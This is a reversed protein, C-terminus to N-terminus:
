KSHLVQCSSCLSGFPVQSCLTKTLFLPHLFGMCSTCWKCLCLHWQVLLIPTLSHFSIVLNPSNTLWWWSAPPLPLSPCARLLDKSITEWAEILVPLPQLKRPYSSRDSKAQLCVQCNAVCKQVDQRMGKWAFHQKLRRYTVHARSHSGLASEHM